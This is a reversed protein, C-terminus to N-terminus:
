PQLLFSIVPEIQNQRMLTPAHGIGEFEIAAVGDRAKMREFTSSSLVDSEGGRIVLISHSVKMQEWVSWMDVDKLQEPACRLPTGIAPDYHVVFGSGEKCKCISRSVLTQIEEESAKFPEYIRRFYTFADKFNQFTPAEAHKLYDGLRIIVDKSFYPGIDNIVLKRIHIPKIRQKEVEQRQEEESSVPLSFDAAAWMGILGGMSTGLWDIPGEEMISSVLTKLDHLYQPYTYNSAPIWDSGLRGAIDVSIIRYFATTPGARNPDEVAVPKLVLSRAVEDFDLSNRSLGHVCILTPRLRCHGSDGSNTYELYSVAHVDDSGLTRCSVSKRVVTVTGDSPPTFSTSEM